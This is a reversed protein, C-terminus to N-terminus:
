DLDKALKTVRMMEDIREYDSVRGIDFWVGKLMYPEIRAKKRLMRPFVNKAFDDGEEIYNFVEVDFVYIAVNCLYEQLPKEKLERVKGGEVEVVGYELANKKKMLAMTAIAPSKRHQNIMDKLDINTIHDGMVVVFTDKIRSKYPLISGATNRRDKEVSYEIKVGFRKGDGFYEEIQEHLYGTTLVLDKLGARKLNNIVYELIPKGGVKLMPKPCTYTYPKLRTGEGGAIVFTKM